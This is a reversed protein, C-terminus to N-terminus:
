GILEPDLMLTVDQAVGEVGDGRGPHQSWVRLTERFVALPEVFDAVLEWVGDADPEELTELAELLGKNIVAPDHEEQRQELLGELTPPPLCDHVEASIPLGEGHEILVRYVAQLAAYCTIRCLELGRARQVLGRYLSPRSAILRCWPEWSVLPDPLDSTASIRAYLWRLAERVSELYPGDQRIAAWVANPAHLCLQKLYRLRDVVITTDGDPLGLLACATALSIHQDEDHRIGLAARYIAFVAGDIVRKEAKGLPPWAGAGFFLKSLVLSGLLTGRRQLSIRKCRFLKTRGERFATWAAARRQVLEPKIAGGRAQIVGLHKYSDVVPLRDPGTEERMVLIEPKGNYIDRQAARSGPGRVSILTATKRPGFSLELSHSAFSDALLSAEMGAGAKADIAQRAEFCSAVDDAWVLDALSEEGQPRAVPRWDRCGDWALAMPTISCSARQRNADRLHLVRRILVGFTLDAWSSGPRTGRRTRVVQDDDRLTMWTGDNIAATLARLWPSAGGQAMASPADLQQQLSLETCVGAPDGVDSGAAPEAEPHRSALSRITSYYAAAVDAFLIVTTKGAAWASRLVSRMAHSGFIVSGGRRGGLQTPAAAQEFFTQIQPRYSRHIAKGLTSLLLIGRYSECATHSGRGKYLWTLSGSKHGLGEEGLLGLKLALPFLLRQMGDACSLGIEAPLADPGCAKGKKALLVANRLDLPTPILQIVDPSPWSARRPQLAEDVLQDRSVEVGDELASFFNRWRKTAAEPTPCLCGNADEIGPLVNPAFPKKRRRSLIANVARFSRPDNAQIGDALGEVYRVRDSKARSRLAKALAGLRFGYLAEAVQAERLWASSGAPPAPAGRRVRAWADFIGLLTQRYVTSKVQVLRHRLWSVQKQLEWAVESLYPHSPTRAPKPFHKTLSDQLYATVEAVHAHASVQWSPRPANQLVQALVEKNAPDTLVNVDIDARRRPKKAGKSVTPVQFDAVTALHDLVMNAATIGPVTWTSVKGARWALPLFVFDPRTLAGNRRQVFTWTPGLQVSSWTAPAWLGHTTLFSHLLTGADDQDEAGCDSVSRSEISGISANCDAGIVLERGKSVKLILRSTETWWQNLVAPDTGRHPAHFTVFVIQCEGGKFVVAMRRPDRFLVVFCRLAFDISDQIAAVQIGADLLQAALLAARAPRMALGEEGSKRDVALSLANYSAIRCSIVGKCCVDTVSAGEASFPAVIDAASLGDHHRASTLDGTLPSPLADDGGAWMAGDDAWWPPDGQRTWVLSGVASGSAAAKAVRDAIENGVSGKHGPVYCLHLGGSAVEACCSAVHGLVRAIGTSKVAVEGRAIALASQCDSMITFDAGQLSSVGLWLAVVLAWCEAQFASLCGAVDARVTLRREPPVEFLFHEEPTIVWAWEGPVGPLTFEQSWGDHTQLMGRLSALARSTHLERSITLLDGESVDFIVGEPLPWPQGRVFVLAAEADEVGAATLVDARSLRGPLQLAFTRGDYLLCDILVTAGPVDWAPATILVAHTDYPQPDVVILRPLCESDDLSRAAAVHGLAEDVDLGALERVQNPAVLQSMSKTPIRQALVELPVPRLPLGTGDGPYPVTDSDNWSSPELLAQGLPPAYQFHEGIPVFCIRMGAAVHLQLDNDLPESDLAVHVHLDLGGPLDALAILQHRSIYPPSEAAFIRGDILSTDLCILLADPQWIPCALLFGSGPCPQPHVARLFPFFQFYEEARAAQVLDIVEDITAPLFTTVSIRELWYGPKAIAFHLNCQSQVDSVVESDAESPAELIREADDPPIYRWAPANHVDPGEDGDAGSDPLAGPAPVDTDPLHAWGAFILRFKLTTGSIAFLYDGEQRGGEIGLAYEAPLRFPFRALLSHISWCDGAQYMGFPRCGVQRFDLFIFHDDRVSAAPPSPAPPPTHCAFIVGRCPEGQLCLDDIAAFRASGLTISGASAGLCQEAAQLLTCGSARDHRSIVEHRGEGPALHVAIHETQYHPAFLAVGIIGADESINNGPAEGLDASAIQTAEASFVTQRRRWAPPVSDDPASWSTVPNNPVPHQEGEAQAVDSSAVEADSAGDSFSSEHSAFLFIASNGELFVEDFFRWAVTLVAGTFFTVPASGTESWSLIRARTLDVIIATSQVEGEHPVGGVHDHIADILGHARASRNPKDPDNDLTRPDVLSSGKSCPTGFLAFDDCGTVRGEDREAFSRLDSLSTLAFRGLFWVPASSRLAFPGGATRPLGQDTLEFTDPPRVHQPVEEPGPMRQDLKDGLTTSGVNPMPAQKLNKVFARKAGSSPAHPARGQGTGAAPSAIYPDFIVPQSSDTEEMAEEATALGPPPGFAPPPHAGTPPMMPGMEGPTGGLGASHDGTGSAPHPLPGGAPAPASMANASTPPVAGPVTYGAAPMSQMSQMMFAQQAAVSGGERALLLRQANLADRLFSSMQQDDGDDMMLAEWAADSEQDAPPATQRVAGEAVIQKMQAAAMRGQAAANDQDQGIKEIDQLFAKRQVQFRRKTEKAWAEWQKTRRTKEEELKRVKMDSKKAVTLARQMEYLLQSDGSRVVQPREGASKEADGPIKMLDYRSLDKDERGAKPSRTSAYSGPWVQWSRDAYGAYGYAQEQEKWKGQYGHYGSNQRKGM